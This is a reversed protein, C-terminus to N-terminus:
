DEEEPPRRPIPCERRSILLGEGMGHRITIMDRKKMEGYAYENIKIHYTEDELNFNVKIGIGLDEFDDYSLRFHRKVGINHVDELSGNLEGEKLYDSDESTLYIDVDLNGKFLARGKFKSM